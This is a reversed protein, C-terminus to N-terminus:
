FKLQMQNAFIDAQMNNLEKNIQVQYYSKKINYDKFEKEVYTNFVTQSWPGAELKMERGDTLNTKVLKSGTETILYRLTKQLKNKCVEGDKVFIEDFRWGSKVRALGCYDFVDNNSELYKEPKIGHVFYYYLAKPVVMFSHNKHLAKEIEFRGKCKTKGAYYKGDKMKYIFEPNSNQMAFFKEKSVEQNSFVGIYNNVDAVILKQYTDHELKLMTLDEWEKCIEYYKQEYKRPITMEVGDTNQMIPICGPIGESLMEYLMMLTLQGNVTVQMTLQPDYLFSNQDNSLGYTSNLVIKYVYNTPNSKPILVREDFFWEYKRCFIEQDIHEPHWNNRIILNPYFSTVDSSMIIIDETSEWIGRKAGHVGGLGFHTECGKYKIHAKFQGKLAYPDLNLKAFTNYLDQFTKTNFKVLPLILEKVVLLRRHTRLDKLDWKKVGLEECMFHMFLEKSIRPESASHLKLNYTKSLGARLKIEKMSKLAIEKTSLVDNICYGLVLDYDEQTNIEETHEIPMDQVNHWRMSGQVWKLSASKAGSDWHNVKFVDVQKIKFNRENYEHWERNRSKIIVSQAYEYIKRGLTDGDLKRFAKQNKIIHHTIQADFDLNNFGIHWQSGKYNAIFFDIIENIDNRVPGLGFTKTEDSMLDTFVAIFCNKNTEYDYVWHQAM